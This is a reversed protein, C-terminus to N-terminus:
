RRIVKKKEKELRLLNEQKYDLIRDSAMMRQNMKKESYNDCQTIIKDTQRSPASKYRLTLELLDPNIDAKSEM